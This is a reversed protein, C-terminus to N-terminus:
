SRGTADRRYIILRLLLSPAIPVPETEAVAAEVAAAEEAAVVAHHDLALDQLAAEEAAVQAVEAAEEVAAAEAVVVAAAVKIIMMATGAPYTFRKKTLKLDTWKTSVDIKTREPPSAFKEEERAAETTLM